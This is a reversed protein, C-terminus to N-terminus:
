GDSFGQKTVAPVPPLQRGPSGKNVKVKKISSSFALKRFSQEEQKLGNPNSLFIEM